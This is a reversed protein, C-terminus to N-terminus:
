SAQSPSLLANLGLTAKYQQMPQVSHFMETRICSPALCKFEWDEQNQKHILCLRYKMQLEYSLKAEKIGLSIM